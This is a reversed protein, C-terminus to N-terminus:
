GQPRRRGGGAGAPSVSQIKRNRLAAVAEELSM